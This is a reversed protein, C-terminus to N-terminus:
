ENLIKSYVNVVMDETIKKWSNDGAEFDSHINHAFEEVQKPNEIMYNIGNCLSYTDDPKVIIGYRGDIVENPLNGVNTCVM